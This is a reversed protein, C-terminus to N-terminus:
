SQDLLIVAAHQTYTHTHLWFVPTKFREAFVRMCVDPAISHETMLLTSFFSLIDKGHQM